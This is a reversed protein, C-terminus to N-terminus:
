HNKLFNKIEPKIKSLIEIYVEKKFDVIDEIPYEEIPVWKWDKFEQVSTMLDIESDKGYFYFLSFHMEAGIKSFKNVVNPPYTLKLPEKFEKVLKISKIGTEEFLERQAAELPTENEEIGGQSFQWGKQRNEKLRQFSLVEGKDNFVIASAVKRYDGM